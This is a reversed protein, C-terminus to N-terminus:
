DQTDHEKEEGNEKEITGEPFYTQLVNLLAHSLDYQGATASWTAIGRIQDAIGLRIPSLSDFKTVIFDAERLLHMGETYERSQIDDPVTINKVGRNLDLDDVLEKSEKLGLGTVTRIAKIAKIKYELPGRLQLSIEM